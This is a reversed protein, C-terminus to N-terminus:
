DNKFRNSDTALRSPIQQPEDFSLNPWLFRLLQYRLRWRFHEPTFSDHLRRFGNLGLEKAWAPQQILGSLNQTLESIDNPDHILLGTQRHIIVDEAGDDFCGVCAKGYNMAELYVLGFGEQRSPMVFAYCDRYLRELLDASVYGPMFVSSAVGTKRAVEAINDSDDGPGAFVLQLDPFQVLLPPLAQLLKYHGKEREGSDMRGVLLLFREGLRRRVGDCTELSLESHDREPVMDRLPVQAPLGLLCAEATIDPIVARMKRLTFHSNSLVLKAWRLTLRSTLRLNRWYERGHAFVVMNAARLCALPLVPLALRLYDFFFIPRGIANRLMSAALRSKSGEFARFAVREPLFPPRAAHDETFSLVKLFIRGENELECLTRLIQINVAAVGGTMKWAGTM